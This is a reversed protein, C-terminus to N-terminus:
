NQRKMVSELWHKEDGASEGRKEDAFFYDPPHYSFFSFTSSVLSYVVCFSVASTLSLSLFFDSHSKKLMKNKPMKRPGNLRLQAESEESVELIKFPHRGVCHLCIPHFVLSCLCVPLLSLFLRLSSSSPPLSAPHICHTHICSQISLHHYISPHYHLYISDEGLENVRKM